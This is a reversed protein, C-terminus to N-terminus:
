EETSPQMSTTLSRNMLAGRLVDFSSGCTRCSFQAKCVAAGFLNDQRTRDSGCYPCRVKQPEHAESMIGWQQLGERGAGTIRRPTWIVRTEWAVVVRRGGPLSSLRERIDAAITDRAPCALMTPVLRVVIQDLNLRIEQILGLQRISVPVEPDLVTDLMQLVTEETVSISQQESM